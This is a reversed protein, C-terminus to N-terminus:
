AKICYYTGSVKTGLANYEALTLSVPSDLTGTITTSGIKVVEGKKIIDATLNAPIVGGGGGMNFVGSAM